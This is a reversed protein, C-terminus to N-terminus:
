SPRPPGEYLTKFCEPATCVEVEHRVAPPGFKIGVAYARYMRPHLCLLQGRQAAAKM